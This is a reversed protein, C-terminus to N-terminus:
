AYRMGKFYDYADEKEKAGPIQVIQPEIGMIILKEAIKTMHNRGDPANDPWLYVQEWGLLQYLVEDNPIASAGCVTAVAHFGQKVMADCAKEGETVYVSVGAPNDPLFEVRYLPLEKTSLGGLSWRGDRFWRFLKQKDPWDRRVHEATPEGARDKIQYRTEKFGEDYWHDSQKYKHVKIGKNDHFLDSLNLEMSSTVDNISCGAHCYLVVGEDGDRISLSPNRDNHAPCLAIYGGSIQRVGELSTLIQEIKM